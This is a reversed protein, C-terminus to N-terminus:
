AIGLLHILAIRLAGLLLLSLVGTATVRGGARAVTRIDTGLGLAAMAMVTLLNTAVTIPSLLMHPLLAASRLAMLALFGCIFALGHEPDELRTKLPLRLRLLTYFLWYAKTNDDATIAFSAKM